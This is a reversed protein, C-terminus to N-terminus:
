KLTKETCVDKVFALLAPAMADAIAQMGLDGPHNAVGEHWFLGAARNREDLLVDSLDVYACGNKRAMERLASNKPMEATEQWFNSCVLVRRLDDGGALYRLLGALGDMFRGREFIERPTNAGLACTIIDPRFDRVAKFADDYQLMTIDREWVSGQAICYAAHAGPQGRLADDVRKELLHVYDKERTSAAMGWNGSWGIDEKPGHLTVSNGLFLIRPYDKDGDQKIYVYSGMRVQKTGPVQLVKAQIDEEAM